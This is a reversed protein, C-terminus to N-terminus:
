FKWGTGFEFHGSTYNPGFDTYAGLMLYGKRKAGRYGVGGGVTTYRPVYAAQASETDIAYLEAYWRQGLSRGVKIGNKVIQQSVQPDFSYDGAKVSVGEHFSVHNGMSFEWDNWRYSTYSTLGGSALVGGAVMDLSGAVSGGGSPTLQWMWPQDKTRKVLLMAVGLQMGVRYQDAGEIRTFNLPFALELRVRRAEGLEIPLMPTWGFSQGEIHRSVFSGFDAISNFGLRSTKEANDGNESEEATETPRMGYQMYNLTAIQATQAGPNGDSVGAVSRKNIAALFNALDTAGSKKLYDRIETDLEPRSQAVFNRNILGPQFPSTLSATWNGQGQSINFQLAQTVGGYTLNANFPQNALQQFSGQGKIM